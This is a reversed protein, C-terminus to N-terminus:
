RIINKEQRRLLRNLDAKYRKCVPSLHGRNEEDVCRIRLPKSKTTFSSSEYNGRGYRVSPDTDQGESYSPSTLMATLLLGFATLFAPRM